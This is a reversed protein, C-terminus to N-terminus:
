AAERGRRWEELLRPVNGSVSRLAPTWGLARARDSRVIQDLTLADAYTKFKKRAEAIPVHRVAPPNPSAALVSEVIDVVREDGHDTAHYVGTADPAAALRAYLEGLDRDYVLAWHNEGTGIVRILGNAADRLLDAVIGRFGGYVIGPRVVMTRLGNAGELVLREHAPRWSVHETANVPADEAAPGNTDGLVWVGSTYIFFGHAHALLTEIALRDLDHGRPSSEAAAHIAGECLVVAGAYTSPQALDGVVPTVGRARLHAAGEANRVLATVHHGARTMSDLVASGIYGTAGTLFIRMRPNLAL